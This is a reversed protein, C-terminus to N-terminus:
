EFNTRVRHMQLYEPSPPYDIPMRFGKSVDLILSLLGNEISMRKLIEYNNSLAIYGIEFLADHIRCLCVVNRLDGRAEPLDAWRAIHSAILLRGDHIDCMACQHGYNRLCLKRIATQGRRQRITAIDDGTSVVGFQLKNHELAIDIADTPLDENEIAIPTDLLLYRGDGLFELIEDDRLEQLVRSLTQEPTAGGSNTEELISDLEEEILAKRSIITTHHNNTFRHVANTVVEKWTRISPDFPAPTVDAKIRMVEADLASPNSSFEEWIKLELRGGRRLGVGSYRPDLRAFNSLKMSVGNPNRFRAPDTKGKSDTMRNLIDSLEVVAPEDKTTTGIHLYLDLALILEDPSWNPNRAM